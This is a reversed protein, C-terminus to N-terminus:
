MKSVYKTITMQQMSLWLWHFHSSSKLLIPYQLTAPFLQKLLHSPMTVRTGDWRSLYCVDHAIVFTQYSSTDAWLLPRNFRFLLCLLAVSTNRLSLVEILWCLSSMELQHKLWLSLGCQLSGQSFSTLACAPIKCPGTTRIFTDRVIDIVLGATNYCVFSEDLLMRQLLVPSKEGAPLLFRWVM